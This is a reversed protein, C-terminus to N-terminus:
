VGHFRTAGGGAGTNLYLQITLHSTEGNEPRTYCGDCHRLFFDGQEYKLFRLRENIGVIKYRNVSDPLFARVRRFLESSLEKNDVLCRLSRRYDQIHSM